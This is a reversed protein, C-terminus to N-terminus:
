YPTPSSLFPVFLCPSLCSWKQRNHISWYFCSSVHIVPLIHSPPSYIQSRLSQRESSTVNSSLAWHPILWDQSSCTHPCFLSREVFPLALSESVQCSLVVSLGLPIIPSSVQLPFVLESVIVMVRLCSVVHWCETKIYDYDYLVKPSTKFSSNFYEM